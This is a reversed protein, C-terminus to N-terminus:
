GERRTLEKSSKGSAVAPVPFSPPFILPPLNLTGYGRLDPAKGQRRGEFARLPWQDIHSSALQVLHRIGVLSANCPLPAAWEWACLDEVGFDLPCPSPQVCCEAVGYRRVCRGDDAPLLRVSVRAM